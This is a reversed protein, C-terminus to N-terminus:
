NPGDILNAVRTAAESQLAPVAHSYTDLTVAITAHGLRESVVKPHIGAMLALTAHTHRLDHLRITPLASEASMRRFRKSVGAPNLPSGDAECFVLGDDAYAAGLALREKAQQARYARLAAVTTPDIAVMRRGRATKPDSWAARGNLEIWARRIAITTADLDVDDWRLGLAEGRRMGTSALLRWLAYLRDGRVHDLFARLEDASWTRLQPRRRERPPDALAAVNRPLRGWKVADALAKRLVAHIYRVSRASLGRGDSRGSEVLRAYFANLRSPTLASLQTNGLAPVIHVVVKQRYSEWTSPRITTRTAPLWENLLYEGLTAKSPEVYAGAGLQTVIKALAQEAERKTKFGSHWKRKRRGTEDDIGVDVVAYWCKGKRAVHGRM